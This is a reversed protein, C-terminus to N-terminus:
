KKNRRERYFAKIKKCVQLVRNETLEPYLPLSLIETAVKRTVPLEENEIKLFKYAKQKFIPKPYHIATEIGSKKLFTILESRRKSRIVFLHWVGKRDKYPNQPLIIPLGVLENLYIESLRARKINWYKIRTLGWNLLAAQIEDLRSNVGEMINNYKSIEGYNRLKRCTEATERNNTVIAGGDGFAGLNKTPYFSFCGTDGITGVLKGECTAGHAQAADEIVKLGYKHAIKLIRPMDAPYGYLHVPLIAKTKKGIKKEILEANITYTSEEIDVFVPSAQTMRIASVTPTATNAVTIVEDNNGVGLSKMALFLADTGSNVGIANQVRLYKAFKGEFLEGEKGLIFWGSKLVRNVIKNIEIRHQKYREKLSFFRIMRFDGM